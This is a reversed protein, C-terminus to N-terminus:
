SGVASEQGGEVKYRQEDRAIDRHVVKLKFGREALRERVTDAIM